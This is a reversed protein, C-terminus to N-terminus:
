RQLIQKIKEKTWIRKNEYVGLGCRPSEGKITALGMKYDILLIETDNGIYQYIKGM